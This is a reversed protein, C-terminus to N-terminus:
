VSVTWAVIALAELPHGVHGSLGYTKVLKFIKYLVICKKNEATIIVHVGQVRPRKMSLFCSVFRQVTSLLKYM